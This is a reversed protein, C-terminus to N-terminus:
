PERDRRALTLLLLALTALVFAVVAAGSVPTDPSPLPLAANM